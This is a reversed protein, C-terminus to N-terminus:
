LEPHPLQVRSAPKGALRDAENRIQECKDPELCDSRQSEMTEKTMAAAGLAVARELPVSDEEQLLHAVDSNRVARYFTPHMADPGTLFLKTVGKDKAFNNIWATPERWSIDHADLQDTGIDHNVSYSLEQLLYYNPSINLVSATLANRSLDLAMVHEPQCSLYESPVRCLDIGHSAAAAAPPHGIDVISLNARGAASFIHVTQTDTLWVPVSLGIYQMSSGNAQVVNRLECLANFIVEAEATLPPLPQQTPPPSSFWHSMVWQRVSSVFDVGVGPERALVPYRARNWSAWPDYLRSGNSESEFRQLLGLYAESPDIRACSRLTGNHYNVASDRDTDTCKGLNNRYVPSTCDTFRYPSEM